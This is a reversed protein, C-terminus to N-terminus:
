RKGAKLAGIMSAPGVLRLDKVQTKGYDSIALIKRHAERKLLREGKWSEFAGPRAEHAVNMGLPVSGLVLIGVQDPREDARYKPNLRWGCEFARCVEPRNDYIGCGSETLHRCPEGAKKGIEVIDTTICCQRCAGCERGPVTM